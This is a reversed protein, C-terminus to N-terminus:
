MEATMEATRTAIAENTYRGAVNAPNPGSNAAVAPLGRQIAMPATTMPMTSAAIM